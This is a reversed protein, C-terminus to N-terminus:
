LYWIATGSMALSLEWKGRSQFLGARHINANPALGPPRIETGYQLVEFIVHCGLFPGEIASFGVPGTGQDKVDHLMDVQAEWFMEPHFPRTNYSTSWPKNGPVM